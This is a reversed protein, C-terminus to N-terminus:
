AFLFINKENRLDESDFSNLKSEDSLMDMMSDFDLELIAAVEFDEVRDNV